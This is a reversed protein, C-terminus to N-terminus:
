HGVHRPHRRVTPQGLCHLYTKPVPPGLVVTLLELKAALWNQTSSHANKTNTRPSEIRVYKGCDAGFPGSFFHERFKLGFNRVRIPNKPQRVQVRALVSGIATLILPFPRRREGFLLARAHAAHHEM